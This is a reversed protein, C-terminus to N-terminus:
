KASHKSSILAFQSHVLLSITNHWSRGWTTTGWQVVMIDADHKWYWLPCQGICLVYVQLHILKPINCCINSVVLASWLNCLMWLLCGVLFFSFHRFYQLPHLQEYGFVKIWSILYLILQNIAIILIYSPRLFFKWNLFLVIQSNRQKTDIQWLKDLLTPLSLFDCNTMQLSIFGGCYGRLSCLLLVLFFITWSRIPVMYPGSIWMYHWGNLSLLPHDLIHLSISFTMSICWIFHVLPFLNFGFSSLLFTASISNYNCRTLLNFVQNYHHDSRVSRIM